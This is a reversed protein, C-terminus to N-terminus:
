STNIHNPDKSKMKKLTLTPYLRDNSRGASSVREFVTQHELPRLM